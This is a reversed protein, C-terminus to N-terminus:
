LNCNFRVSAEGGNSEIYYVGGVTLGSSDFVVAVFNEGWAGIHSVGTIAHGVFASLSGSISVAPAARLTVPTPFYAYLKDTAYAQAGVAIM